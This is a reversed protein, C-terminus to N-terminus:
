KLYITGFMRRSQTVFGLSEYLSWAPRNWDLVWLFIQLAKEQLSRNVAHSLVARGLGRGRRDERVAVQDIEGHHAYGSAIIEGDEFLLFFDQAHEAFERREVESWVFQYPKLDNAKRMPYFAGSILEYLQDFYEERYPVFDLKPEPLFDGQYVMYRSLFQGQFGVKSAFQELLERDEFDVCYDSQLESLGMKRAQEMMHSVLISGIGQRRWAKGVFVTLYGSNEGEWTQLLSIGAPIGEMWALLWVSNGEESAMQMQHATELPMESLLPASEQPLHGKKMILQM